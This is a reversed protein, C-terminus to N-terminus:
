VLCGIAGADAAVKTDDNSCDAGPKNQGRRPTLNAKDLLLFFGAPSGAFFLNTTNFDFHDTNIELVDLDLKPVRVPQKSLIEMAMASGLSHAVAIWSDANQHYLQMITSRSLHVRGHEHFEPNNRCWLKYVRNAESVVAKIMKPKHGSMYFPIDLQSINALVLKSGTTFDGRNEAHLSAM